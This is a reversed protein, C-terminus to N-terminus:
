LAHVWSTTDPARDASQQGGSGRPAPLGLAAGAPGELSSRYLPPTLERARRGWSQGM